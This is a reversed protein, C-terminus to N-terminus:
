TRPREVWIGVAAVAVFVVGTTAVLAPVATPLPAVLVGLQLATLGGCLALARRGSGGPLAGRRRALALAGWLLGLELLQAAWPHNWLSLGFARGGPWLTMDPRHVLFDLLWHSLVVAAVVAGLRRTGGLGRRAAVWAGGAAAFAANGVLSHTYPMHELVLPNSPLGPDLRVHEAGLLVLAVWAVDVLQAALLLVWLPVRPAVARGAFAASYHGVFM